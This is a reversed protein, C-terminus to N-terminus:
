HVTEPPAVDGLIQRIDRLANVLIDTLEDGEYNRLFLAVEPNEPDLYDEFENSM